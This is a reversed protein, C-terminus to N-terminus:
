KYDSAVPGKLDYCSAFYTVTSAWDTFMAKIGVQHALVDLIEYMQGDEHAYDYIRGYYYEERAEVTALPGSREFSWPMMDLGAAKAAIAYSSPVVTKNNASVELLYDFPPSIINVGMAKLAPLRAVDASFNAANDGDEDLFVAQRGFAPFEAIWQFIDPPNFSQAWVRDSSINRSIFTNIMDRAYREQTYGNFPM